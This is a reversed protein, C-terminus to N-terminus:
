IGPEVAGLLRRTELFRAVSARTLLGALQGRADFVLLREAQRQEM